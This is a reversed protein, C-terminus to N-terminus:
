RMNKILSFDGSEAAALVSGLYEDVHSATMVVPMAKLKSDLQPNKAATLIREVHKKKFGSVEKLTAPFNIDRSLELMAEAVALGLDRGHLPDTKTKLYGANRYIRAVARLQREIVPAFFVTYYPNMLACTRGHPLLDVLSFSTLHGGNTSGTMIAVGGLDTGLGLAERASLDDSCECATKVHNVILEIGLLCVPEAKELVDGKAGYYVELSHSIGDLAGDATFEPSMSTTMRYDFLAKRPVIANDIILKKQNTVLNTINSYKTLHTASSAATQVALFPVLHKGTRNLMETVKGVGFYSEIDPYDGGLRAYAWAGKAADITSGGGIAVIADPTQGRFAEAMRFMDERPSNPASGPVAPGALSVGANRLTAEVREQLGNGWSKNLGSLVLSVKRDLFSAQAGLRDLCDLGFIYDNERYKRLLQYADQIQEKM